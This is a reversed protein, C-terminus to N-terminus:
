ASAMTSTQISSPKGVIKGSNLILKEAQERQYEVNSGIYFDATTKVTTHRLQDKISLAPVGKLHMLSATTHRLEKWSYKKTDIGLSKLLNRFAKFTNWHRYPTGDPQSFVWESRKPLNQFLDVLQRQMVIRQGKGTADKLTKSSPLYIIGTHLDVCEWRLNLLEGERMGTLYATIVMPELWEPSAEIIREMEEETFFNRLGKQEPYFLGSKSSKPFPNEEMLERDVAFNFLRRLGALIRNVHSNTVEGGGREKPTSKVHDRFGFLDRRTINSLKRGEFYNLYTESPGLIYNRGDGEKRYLDILQKFTTKEQRELVEYKGRKGKNEREMKEKLAMSLRPGVAKEYKKSGVYYTVYYTDGVKYVGKHKTKERKM